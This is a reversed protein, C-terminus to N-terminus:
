GVMRQSPEYSIYGDLYKLLSNCIFALHLHLEITPTSTRHGSLGQSIYMLARLINAM